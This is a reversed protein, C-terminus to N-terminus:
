DATRAEWKRSWPCFFEPASRWHRTLFQREPFTLLREQGKEEEGNHDAKHPHRFGDPASISAQM